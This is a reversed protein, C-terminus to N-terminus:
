ASEDYADRSVLRLLIDPPITVYPIVATAHNELVCFHTVKDLVSLSYTLKDSVMRSFPKSPPYQVINLVSGNDLRDLNRFVIRTCDLKCFIAETWTSTLM